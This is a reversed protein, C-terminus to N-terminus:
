GRSAEESRVYAIVREREFRAIALADVAWAPWADLVGGSFPPSTPHKFANGCMEMLEETEALAEDVNVRHFHLPAPVGKV